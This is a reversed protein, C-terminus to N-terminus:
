SVRDPREDPWVIETGGSEREESSPAPRPEPSAPRDPLSASKEPVPRIAAVEDAEIWQRVGLDPFEAVFDRCWLEDSLEVVRIRMGRSWPDDWGPASGLVVELEGGREKAESVIECLRPLGGPNWEVGRSEDLFGWRLRVRGHLCGYEYLRWLSKLDARLRRFLKGHSGSKLYANLKSPDGLPRSIGLTSGIILGPTVKLTRRRQNLKVTKMPPSLDVIQREGPEIGLRELDSWPDIGFIIEAREILAAVEAPDTSDHFRRADPDLVSAAGFGRRTFFCRLVVKRAERYKRRTERRELEQKRRWKTSAEAARREEEEEEDLARLRERLLRRGTALSGDEPRHVLAGGAALGVPGSSAVSHRIDEETITVGADAFTRIAREVELEGGCAETLLALKRRLSLSQPLWTGLGRLVEELTVPSTDDVPGENATRERSPPRGPLLDLQDRIRFLLHDWRSYEASERVVELKGDATKRLCRLAHWTKRLSKVSRTVGLAGLREAIEEITMPAGKEAIVLGMLDSVSFERPDIRGLFDEPIDDEHRIM